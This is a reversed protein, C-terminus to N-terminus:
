ADSRLDWTIMGRGKAAITLGVLIRRVEGALKVGYKPALLEVQERYRELLRDVDDASTRTLVRAVARVVDPQSISIAFAGLLNMTRIRDPQQTTFEVLLFAVQTMTATRREGQERLTAVRSLGRTSFGIGTM